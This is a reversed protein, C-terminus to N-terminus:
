RSGAAREWPAARYDDAGVFRVWADAVAAPLFANALVAARVVHWPRWLPATRVRLAERMRRRSAARDGRWYEGLSLNVLLNHRAHLTRASPAATNLTALHKECVYIWPAAAEAWRARTNGEHVRVRALVDRVTVVRGATSVRWFLDWDEFASLSEDFGGVLDRVSRRMVVAPPYMRTWTETIGGYDFGRAEARDFAKLVEASEAVLTYGAGDMLEAHSHVM